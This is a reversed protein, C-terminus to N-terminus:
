YKYKTWKMM